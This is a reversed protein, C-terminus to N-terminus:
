PHVRIYTSGNKILVKQGDQGLVKAPGHWEKNDRRKYCVPVGTFYKIDGSSRINQSLAGRVREPNENASLHKEQKTYQKYPM